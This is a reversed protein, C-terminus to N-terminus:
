ATLRIRAENLSDPDSLVMIEDGTHLTTHGNVVVSSGNRVVQLLLIDTPLRLNRVSVGDIDPNTVWSRTM